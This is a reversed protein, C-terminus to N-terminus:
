CFLFSKTPNRAEVWAVIGLSSYNIAQPQAAVIAKGESAQLSLVHSVNAGNAGYAGDVVTV